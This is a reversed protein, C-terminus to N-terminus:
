ASRRETSVTRSAPLARNPCDTRTSPTLGVQCSHFGWSNTPKDFRKPVCTSM